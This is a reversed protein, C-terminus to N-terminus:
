FATDESRPVRRRPRNATTSNNECLRKECCDPYTANTAGRVPPCHMSEHNPPTCRVVYGTGNTCVVKVCPDSLNTEKEPYNTGNYQCELKLSKEETEAVGGDLLVIGMILATNLLAAATRM